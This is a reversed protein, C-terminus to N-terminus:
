GSWTGASCSPTSSAAAPEEIMTEDYRAMSQLHLEPDLAAAFVAPRPAAIVTELVFRPM